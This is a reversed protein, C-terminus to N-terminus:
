PTSHAPTTAAPPGTSPSLGRQFNLGLRGTPQHNGGGGGCSALLLLAVAVIFRRCPM